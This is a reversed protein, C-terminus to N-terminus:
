RWGLWRDVWFWWWGRGARRVWGGISWSLCLADGVSTCSRRTLQAPISSYGGTVAQLWYQLRLFDKLILLAVKYGYFCFSKDPFFLFCNEYYPDNPIKRNCLQLCLQRPNAATVLDTVSPQL